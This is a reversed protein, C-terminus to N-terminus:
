VKFPFVPIGINIHLSKNNSNIMVTMTRVTIADSLLEQSRGETCDTHKRVAHHLDNHHNYISIFLYIYM